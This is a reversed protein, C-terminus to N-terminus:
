TTIYSRLDIKSGFMNIKGYVGDFGPTISYRRERMCKIYLAITSSLKSIEDIPAELLVNFESGFRSVLKSYLNWISGSNLKHVEDESIGMSFAIITQLPLVKIFDIHDQPMFGKPRDSLEEVRDEVGKTLKRGCIPCIYNLKRAENPSLPGVNCNRHGSWHYKGYAPDVEITMLFKSKDRSKITNVLEKYNLKNLNFLCAERGLRFPYPSHSDSFSLISFKNLQSVCWNMEPDSSLGTEIAYIKNVKDSYCDEIRDVGSFSGFMSWWPTWIHAPFILCESEVSLVIDILESPHINFIPRGNSIVDGYRSLCDSLQEAVELSPMLIVHHVRRKKGNFEFITGVESQAIFMVHPNLRYHYLGGDVSVLNEKLERLWSPHFCDGTGLLNLGKILAYSVLTPINMQLSSGGSYKSHIHLDAYVKM